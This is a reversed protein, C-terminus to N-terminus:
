PPPIAPLGLLIMRLREAVEEASAPREEARKALLSLVLDEFAAPVTAGRESPRWPTEQAIAKFMAVTDRGSFPVDGALM